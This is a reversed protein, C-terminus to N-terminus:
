FPHLYSLSLLISRTSATIPLFVYPNYVLDLPDEGNANSSQGYDISYKSILYGVGIEYRSDHKGNWALGLGYFDADSLPITLDLASAPIASNRRQYGARLSLNQNWAYEGGISWSLANQYKRQLTLSDTTADPDFISGFVLYDIPQDFKFTFKDWTKYFSKQLDINLRFRPTLLLSMGIALHQPINLDMTVDGSERAAGEITPIVLKLTNTLDQMAASYQMSFEGKMNSRAMSRYALGLSIWPEPTWLLGANFGVSLFDETTLKLTALDDYPGPGLQDGTITEAFAGLIASVAQPSRNEMKLAIGQYNFNIGLGIALTDTLPFALTPSFYTIRSIATENGQYRGVDTDDRSFGVMMPSYVATAFVVGNDALPLAAGGLPIIPVSSSETSGGPALLVPDGTEGHQNAYPDNPYPKQALNEYLARVAPDVRQEGTSYRTKLYFTALKFQMTPQTFRILGAPNFHIADLGPPDATVANAMAIAKPSLITLDEMMEGHALDTLGGWLLGFLILTSFKVSNMSPMTSTKYIVLDDYTVFEDIISM